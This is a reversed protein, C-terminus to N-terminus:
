GRILAVPDGMSVSGERLVRAYLRSWGPHLKQAIRTFEGDRFSETITQCPHAYATVEVELAGIRLRLGPGLREWELGAVTVNEGTTGVDIPHGEAQLARIHDLSFLSVAREPGGHYRPNRQRDGDLGGATVRVSPVPRKPVGGLSVNLSAVRALADHAM